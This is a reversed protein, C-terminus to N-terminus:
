AAFAMKTKVMGASILRQIMQDLRKFGAVTRPHHYHFYFFNVRFKQPDFNQIQRVGNAKLDLELLQRIRAALAPYTKEIDELTSM